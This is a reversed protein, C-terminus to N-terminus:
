NIDNIWESHIRDYGVRLYKTVLRNGGMTSVKDVVLKETCKWQNKLEIQIM